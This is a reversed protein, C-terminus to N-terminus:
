PQKQVYKQSGLLIGIKSQFVKREALLQGGHFQSGFLGSKTVSVTEEPDQKGRKQVSQCSASIMTLGSVTM